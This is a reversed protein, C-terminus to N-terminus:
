TFRISVSGLAQIRYAHEVTMSPERETLPEIPVRSRRSEFLEDGLRAIMTASAISMATSM